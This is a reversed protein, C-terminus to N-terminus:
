RSVATQSVEPVTAAVDWLISFNTLVSINKCLGAHPLATLEKACPSKRFANVTEPQAPPRPQNHPPQLSLTSKPSLIELCYTSEWSAPCSERAATLRWLLSAPLFTLDAFTQGTRAYHPWAHVSFFHSTLQTTNCIELRYATHMDNTQVPLSPWLSASRCIGRCTRSSCRWFTSSAATQSWPCRRGGWSSVRALESVPAPCSARAITPSCRPCGLRWRPRTRRCRGSPASRGPLSAPSSCFSRWGPAGRCRPGHTDWAAPGPRDSGTPAVSSGYVTGRSRASLRPAAHPPPWCSYSYTGSTSCPPSRPSSEPSRWVHTRLSLPQVRVRVRRSCSSVGRHVWISFVKKIILGFSNYWFWTINASWSTNVKHTKLTM